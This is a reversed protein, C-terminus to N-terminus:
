SFIKIFSWTAFACSDNANSNTAELPAPLRASIAMSSKVYMPFSVHLGMVGAGGVVVM